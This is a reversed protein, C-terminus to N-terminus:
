QSDPPPGDEASGFLLARVVWERVRGVKELQLNGENERGVVDRRAYWGGRGVERYLVDVRTRGGRLSGGYVRERWVRLEVGRFLVVDGRWVERVMGEAAGRGGYWLTVGFGTRTEDGLQIEVLWASSGWRTRVLRLESVSVVAAILNVVVTGPACLQIETAPPIGAIDSVHGRNGLPARPERPASDDDSTFSDTSFYSTAQTDHLAAADRLSDQCFQSLLQSVRDDQTDGTLLPSEDDPAFTIDAISFFDDSPHPAHRARTQSLATSLPLSRWEPYTNSPAPPSPSATTELGLFQAISPDLDSLLNKETALSAPSPAGTFIILRTPAMPSQRHSLIHGNRQRNQHWLYSTNKQELFVISSNLILILILLRRLCFLHDHHVTVVIVNSGDFCASELYRYM